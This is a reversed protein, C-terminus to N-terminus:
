AIGRERGGKCLLVDASASTAKTPSGPFSDQGVLEGEYLDRPSSTM